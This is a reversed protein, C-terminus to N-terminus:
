IFDFIGKMIEPELDNRMKYMESPNTSKKPSDRISLYHILFFNIQKYYIMFTFKTKIKVHICNQLFCTFLVVTKCTHAIVHVFLFLSNEHISEYCTLKGVERKNAHGM